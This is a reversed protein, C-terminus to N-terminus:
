PRQCSSGEFLREVDQVGLYLREDREEIDTPMRGQWGARGRTSYEIWSDMVEVFSAQLDSCEIEGRDFAGSRGYFRSISEVVTDSLERLTELSVPDTAADPSPDGPGTPPSDADRGAEADADEAATESIAAEDSSETGVADGTPSDDGTTPGTATEDPSSELLPSSEEQASPTSEVRDPAATPEAGTGNGFGRVLVAIVAIAILLGLAPLAWRRLGATSSTPTSDLEPQVVPPVVTAERESEPAAQMDTAEPAAEVGLGSEMEPLSEPTADSVKELITEPVEEAASEASLAEASSRREEAAALDEEVGTLAEYVEDFDSAPEAGDVEAGDVGAGDVEAGDDTTGDGEDRDEDTGLDADMDESDLGASEVEAILADFDLDDGPKHAPADPSSPPESAPEPEDASEPVPEPEDASEPVPETDLDRHLAPEGEGPDPPAEPRPPPELRINDLTSVNEWDVRSRRVGKALLSENTVMEYFPLPLEGDLGDATRRFTAGSPRRPDTVFLIAVQWPDPFLRQHTSLDTATLTPEGQRHAHYWGVLIGRQRDVELQLAVSAEGSIQEAEAERLPFRAPLVQTVIVFRRNATPDECLDGVLYGFPNGDVAAGWVHEHMSTFARQDVFLEYSGSVAERPPEVEPRWYISRILPRPTWIHYAEADIQRDDESKQWAPKRDNEDRKDSDM